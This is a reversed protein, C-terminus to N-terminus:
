RFRRDSAFAQRAMQERVAAEAAVLAGETTMTDDAEGAGRMEEVSREYCVGCLFRDFLTRYRAQVSEGCRECGRVVKRM